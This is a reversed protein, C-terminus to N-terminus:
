ECLDRITRLEEEIVLLQASVAEEPADPPFQTTFQYESGDGNPLVRTFAGQSPNAANLIDVTGQDPSSRVIIRAEGQDNEVVWHEGDRRITRAFGPAWKPLANPDSVLAFVKEPPAAIALSRSHTVLLNTPM